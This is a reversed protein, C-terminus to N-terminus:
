RIRRISNIRVTQVPRREFDATDRVETSAIRDVVDMGDTVKGFVCYGYDELTGGSGSDQDQHDYNPHDRVNIFFQCNASDVVDYQRAMAITGRRNALGNDAENRIPPGPEKQIGDPTFIGGLIVEGPFVEHFITGNYFGDEVYKLFNDVTLPAKENDLEVTFPGMSTEVVVVPQGPEAAKGAPLGGTSSESSRAATGQETQQNAAVAGSNGKGSQPDNEGSGSGCGAAAMLLAATLSAVVLRRGLDDKVHATVNRRGRAANKDEEAVKFTIRM